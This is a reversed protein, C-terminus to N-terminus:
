QIFCTLRLDCNGREQANGWVNVAAQVDKLAGLGLPLGEHGSEEEVALFGVGRGERRPAPPMSSFSCPDLPKFIIVDIWVRVRTM